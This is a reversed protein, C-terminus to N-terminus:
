LVGTRVPDLTTATATFLAPTQDYDNNMELSVLWADCFEM